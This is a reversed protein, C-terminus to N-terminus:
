RQALPPYARRVAIFLPTGILGGSVAQLVNAPIESVAPGIGMLVMGAVFYGAVVVISGLGVAMLLHYVDLQTQGQRGRVMAGVLYGQLGHILFSFLAWQAYGSSIDALATGLAGAVAGVVPGFAFAAFFIGADGLHVFGRAPTPIQVLRTLVFIVATMVATIAILRPDRSKQM